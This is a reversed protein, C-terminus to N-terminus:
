WIRIEVDGGLGLVAIEIHLARRSYRDEWAAVVELVPHGILSWKVTICLTVVSGRTPIADNGGVKQYAVVRQGRYRRIGRVVISNVGQSADVQGFRERGMRRLFKM